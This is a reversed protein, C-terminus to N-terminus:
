AIPLKPLRSKGVRSQKSVRRRYYAVLASWPILQQGSEGVVSVRGSLQWIRVAGRTVGCLRAAEAPTVLPNKRWRQLRELIERLHNENNAAPTM